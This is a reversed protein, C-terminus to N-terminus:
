HAVGLAVLAGAFPVAVIAVGLLAYRQRQRRRDRRTPASELAQLRAPRSASVDFSRVAM